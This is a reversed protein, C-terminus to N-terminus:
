AMQPFIIKTDTDYSSKKAPAFWDPHGSANALFDGLIYGLGNQTWIITYSKRHYFAAGFNQGSKYNVFLVAWVTAWFAFIRGIRDGLDLGIRVILFATFLLLIM